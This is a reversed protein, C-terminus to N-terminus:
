ERTRERLTQPLHANRSTRGPIGEQRAPYGKLIWRLQKLQKHPIPLMSKRRM